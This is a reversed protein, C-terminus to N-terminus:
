AEQNIWYEVRTGSVWECFIVNLVSTVYDGSGMRVWGVPFTPAVSHNHYIKQVIGIKAGTLDDTINSTSPSAVSNYIQSSAFSIVSGTTATADITEWSVNGTGDTTPVQGVTGDVNPLAYANNITTKGDHGVKLKDQIENTSSNWGQVLLYNGSTTRLDKRVLLGNGIGSYTRSYIYGAYRSGNSHASNIFIPGNRQIFATKNGGADINTQYLNFPTNNPIDAEYTEYLNTDSNWIWTQGITDVDTSVYLTNSAQQEDPTFVTGGLNPNETDFEVIESPTVPVTTISFYSTGNWMYIDEGIIYFTNSVGEVPLDSYSTFAKIKDTMVNVLQNDTNKYYLENDNKSKFVEISAGTERVAQANLKKNINM